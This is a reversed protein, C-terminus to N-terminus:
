FCALHVWRISLHVLLIAIVLVSINITTDKMTLDWCSFNCSCEFKYDIKVESFGYTPFLYCVLFVCDLKKIRRMEQLGSDLMKGREILKM